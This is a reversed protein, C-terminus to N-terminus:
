LQTTIKNVAIGSPLTAFDTGDSYNEYYSLFPVNGRMSVFGDRRLKAIGTAGNRYM